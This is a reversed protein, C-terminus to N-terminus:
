FNYFLNLRVVGQWTRDNVPGKLEEQNELIWSTGKETRLVAGASFDIGYREGFAIGFASGLDYFNSQQHIIEGDELPYLEETWIKRTGIKSLMGVYPTWQPGLKEKFLLYRLEVALYNRPDSQSYEDYVETNLPDPYVEREKRWRFHVLDVVLSAQDHIRLEGGLSFSRVWLDEIIFIGLAKGRLLFDFKEPSYEVEQAKSQYPTLLFICALARLLLLQRLSYLIRFGAM